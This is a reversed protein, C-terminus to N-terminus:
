EVTKAGRVRVIETSMKHENAIVMKFGSFGIKGQSFTIRM